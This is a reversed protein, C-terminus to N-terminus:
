TNFYSDLTKFSQLTTVIDKVYDDVHANFHKENRQHPNTGQRRRRKTDKQEENSNLELSISSRKV